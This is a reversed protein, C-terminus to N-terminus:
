PQAGGRKPRRSRVLMAMGIIVGCGAAILGYPAWSWNGQLASGTTTQLARLAGILMITAGIGFLFAGALGFGLFRGLGKVPELAEQRAYALVLEYLETVHTALSKEEGTSPSAM